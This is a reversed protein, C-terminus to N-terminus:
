FMWGEWLRRWADPFGQRAVSGAAAVPIRAINRGNLLIDVSGIEDGAAVPAAVSPPLNPKLEIECIGGLEYKKSQKRADELSIQTKPDEVTEVIELQQYVKVDKKEPDLVVRVNTGTGDQERKYASILAAEVREMMYEKPIGKEKELLDLADFFEQNM